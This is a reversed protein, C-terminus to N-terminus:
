RMTIAMSSEPSLWKVGTTRRSRVRMTAVKLPSDGDREAHKEVHSELNITRVEETPGLSVIVAHRHDISIGGKGSM